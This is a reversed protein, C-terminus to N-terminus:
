ETEIQEAEMREMLETLHQYAFLYAEHLQDGKYVKLQMRYTLRLVNLHHLLAKKDEGTIILM